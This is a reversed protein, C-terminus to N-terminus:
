THTCTVAAVCGDKRCCATCMSASFLRTCTRPSTLRRKTTEGSTSVSSEAISSASCGTAGSSSPSMAISVLQHLTCELSCTTGHSLAYVSRRGERALEWQVHVGFSLTQGGTYRTLAGRTDNTHADLLCRSGSCLELDADLAPAQIWPVLQTSSTAFSWRLCGMTLDLGPIHMAMSSYGPRQYLRSSRAFWSAATFPVRPHVIALSWLLCRSDAHIM